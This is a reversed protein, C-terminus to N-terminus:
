AWGYIGRVPPNPTIETRLVVDDFEDHIKKIYKAAIPDEEEVEEVEIGRVSSKPSTGKENEIRMKGLIIEIENATLYQPNIEDLDDCPPLRWTEQQKWWPAVNM